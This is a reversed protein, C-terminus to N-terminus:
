LHSHLQEAGGRSRKVAQAAAEAAADEEFGGGAVVQAAQDGGPNGFAFGDGSDTFAYINIRHIHHLQM